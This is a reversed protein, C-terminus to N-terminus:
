TEELVACVAIERNQIRCQGQSVVGVALLPGSSQLVYRPHDVLNNGSSSRAPIYLIREIGYINSVSHVAPIFSRRAVVVVVGLVGIASRAWRTGAALSDSAGSLTSSTSYHWALM